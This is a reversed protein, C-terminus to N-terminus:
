NGGNKQFRYRRNQLDGASPAILAAQMGIDNM